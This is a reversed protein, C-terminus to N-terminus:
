DAAYSIYNDKSVVSFVLFCLLFSDDLPNSCFKLHKLM